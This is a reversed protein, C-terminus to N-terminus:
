VLDKGDKKNDKKGGNEEAPKAKPVVKEFWSPPDYKEPPDLKVGGPGVTRFREAFMSEDVDFEDGPERLTVGDFGRATAVVRVKKNEAM